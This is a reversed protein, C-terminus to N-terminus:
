EAPAPSRISRRRILGAVGLAFVAAVLPVSRRQPVMACLPGSGGSSSCWAELRHGAGEEVCVLGYDTGEYKAECDGSTCEECTDGDYEKEEMVTDCSVTTDDDDGPDPAIDALAVPAWLLALSALLPKVLSKM